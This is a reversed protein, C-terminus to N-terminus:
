DLGLAGILRSSIKGDIQLNMANQFDMIARRTQPGYIGDIPGPEFGLAKLREQVARVLNKPRSDESSPEYRFDGAVGIDAFIALLPSVVVMKLVSRRTLATATM